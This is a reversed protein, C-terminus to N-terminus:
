YQHENTFQPFFKKVNQAVTFFLVFLCISAMGMHKEEGTAHEYM